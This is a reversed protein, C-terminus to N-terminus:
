NIKRGGDKIGSFLKDMLGGAESAAEQGQSYRILSSIDSIIAVAEQSIGSALGQAKSLEVYYQNDNLLDATELSSKLAAMLTELLELNVKGVKNVKTM